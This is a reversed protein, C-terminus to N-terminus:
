TFGHGGSALLIVDGTSLVRNDVYSQNNDYFDVKVKGKRVFLVELTYEVNRPVPVHVHPDIVHGQPRSMYALQQSYENPTFFQIGTASFGAPIILALMKGASDFVRDIATM